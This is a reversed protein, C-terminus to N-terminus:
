APRYLGIVHPPRTTEATLGRGARRSRLPSSIWSVDAAAQSGRLRISVAAGQGGRRPYGRRRESKPPRAAKIETSRAVWRSSSRCAGPRRRGQRSPSGSHSRCGRIRRRPGSAIYCTIYIYADASIRCVRLQLCYLSKFDDLRSGALGRSLGRLRRLKVRRKGNGADGSPTLRPRRGALSVHTPLHLSESLMAMRCAAALPGVPASCDLGAEGRAPGM